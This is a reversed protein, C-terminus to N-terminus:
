LPNVNLMSPTFGAASQIRDPTAPQILNFRTSLGQQRRFSRIADKVAFFTSNVAMVSGENTSKSDMIQRINVDNYAGTNGYFDVNFVEPIDVICPVKYDWTDKILMEGNSNFTREEKFAAGIGFIYGGYLQGQDVAPNISDGCDAILNAELIRINGSLMNVEVTSMCGLPVQLSTMIGAGTYTLDRFPVNALGQFTFGETTFGAVNFANASPYTYQGTVPGTQTFIYTTMLNGCLRQWAASDGVGDNGTMSANMNYYLGNNLVIDKAQAPGYQTYNDATNIIYTDEGNYGGTMVGKSRALAEWQDCADEAARLLWQSGMSGGNLSFAQNLAADFEDVVRVLYSPCKLRSSVYNILKATNGQGSEVNAGKWLTVEFTVPNVRLVCSAQNTFNSINSYKGYFVTLGRKIYKNAANFADVDAKKSSYNYRTELRDVIGKYTYPDLSTINSGDKQKTLLPANIYAVETFPKDLYGAIDDMISGWAYNINAYYPARYPCRSPRPVKVINQYFYHSPINNLYSVMYRAGDEMQSFMEAPTSLYTGNGYKYGNFWRRDILYNTSAYSEVNLSRLAGTSNFGAKYPFWQQSEAGNTSMDEELSQVYRIMRGNAIYCALITLHLPHAAAWILKMGFAGAIRKVIHRFQNRSFGFLTQTNSPFGNQPMQSTSQIRFIGLEDRYCNIAQTELAMHYKESTLVGTSSIIYDSWPVLEGNGGTYYYSEFTNQDYPGTFTMMTDSRPYLNSGTSTINLDFLEKPASFGGTYPFNPRGFIVGRGLARNNINNNTAVSIAQTAMAYTGTNNIISGHLAIEKNVADVVSIAYDTFINTYGFTMAKATKRAIELDKSLVLAARSGNYVIYQDALYENQSNVPISPNNAGTLNATPLTTSVIPNLISSETSINKVTQYLDQATIVYEVGPTARAAAISAITTASQWDISGVPITTLAAAMWLSDQHPPIDDNYRVEGAAIAVADNRPASFHAPYEGRIAQSLWQYMIMPSRTSDAAGSIWTELSSKISSYNDLYGQNKFLNLFSMYFLTAGLNKRFAVKGDGSSVDVFAAIPSVISNLDTQVNSIAGSIITNIAGTAGASAVSIDKGNLYAETLPARAVGFGGVLGGYAIRTNSIVNATVTYSAACNLWAHSNFYRQAVRYSWFVEGTAKAPIVISKILLFKDSETVNFYDQISLGNADITYGPYVYTCNLTANAAILIPAVDSAFGGNKAMVLGGVLSAVNRVHNGSIYFLHDAIDNFKSDNSAGTYMLMVAKNIAVNAGFVAGTSTVRTAHLESIGNVDLFLNTTPRSYEPVGYSTGAAVIKCNNTGAIQIQSILSALSTVRAYTINKLTNTYTGASPTFNQLYTSITSNSTANVDYSPNYDIFGKSNIHSFGDPRFIYGTANARTYGGTAYSGLFKYFGGDDITGTANSPGTANLDWGLLNGSPDFVKPCHTGTPLFSRAMAIIGPYCSCRCLNGDFNKELFEYEARQMFTGPQLATYQSMVQATTCAGCQLGYTKAIREQVPHYQYISKIGETTWIALGDCQVVLKLCSNVSVNRFTASDSDYYSIMVACVGCGGQRCHVKVGKFPTSYRLYDVLTLTPDVNSITTLKGNLYFSVSNNTTAGTSYYQFYVNNLNAISQNLAAIQGVVGQAVTSGSGSGTIFQLTPM